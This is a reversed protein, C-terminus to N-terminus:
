GLWRALTEEAVPRIPGVNVISDDEFPLGQGAAMWERAELLDGARASTPDGVLRREIEEVPAVVRTVRVPMAM